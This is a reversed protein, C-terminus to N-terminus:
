NTPSDINKTFYTHTWSGLNLYNDRFQEFRLLSPGNIPDGIYVKKTRSTQAVGYIAVFHGGGEAWEIFACVIRNATIENKVENWSINGRQQSKFNGTRILTKDLFWGRDCSSPNSCCTTLQLEKKAIKCQTWTSESSYFHSVSKGTAAWCWFNRQQLEMTFNLMQDLIAM